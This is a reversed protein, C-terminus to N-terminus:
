MGVITTFKESSHVSLVPIPSHNVIQQANTGLWLNSLNLNQETMIVIMEANKDKAYNIVADPVNNDSVYDSSYIIDNKKLYECVQKVYANIKKKSAETHITDIGIVYIKAKFIKAIEAALAVKQRTDMTNDIPLVIEGFNKTCSNDRVTLVPCSAKAIIKNARSGIWFEEFGSAGHTSMIILYSDDYKAQNVIETSVKGKRIKYSIEGKKLKNKYKAIIEELKNKAFKYEDKAIKDYFENIKVQV